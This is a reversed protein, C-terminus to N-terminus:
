ETHKLLEVDRVDQVEVNCKEFELELRMEIRKQHYERMQQLEQKNFEILDNGASLNDIDGNWADSEIFDDDTKFSDILSDIHSTLQQKDEEEGKYEKTIKDNVSHLM